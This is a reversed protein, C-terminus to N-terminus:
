TPDGQHRHEDPVVMTRSEMCKVIGGKRAHPGYVVYGQERLEPSQPPEVHVGNAKCYRCHVHEHKEPQLGHAGGSV